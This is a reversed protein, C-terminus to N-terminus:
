PKVKELLAEDIEKNDEIDEPLDEVDESYELDEEDYESM